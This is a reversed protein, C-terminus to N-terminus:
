RNLLLKVEDVIKLPLDWDLLPNELWRVISGKPVDWPLGHLENLLNATTTSLRSLDDAITDIQNSVRRLHLVYIKCELLDEIINLTRMLLSTEPDSITYKKSWAHVVATNDVQLVVHKGCLKKPNTVFPLLM